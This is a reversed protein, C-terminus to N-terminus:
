SQLAHLEENFDAGAIYLIRPFKNVFHKICSFSNNIASMNAVEVNILFGNKLPFKHVM